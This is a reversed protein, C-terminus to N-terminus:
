EHEGGNQVEFMIWVRIGHIVGQYYDEYIHIKNEKDIIEIQM